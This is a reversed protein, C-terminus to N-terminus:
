TITVIKFAFQSVSSLFTSKGCGEDGLLLITITQEEMTWINDLALSCEFVPGSVSEYSNLNFTM